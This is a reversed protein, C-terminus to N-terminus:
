LSSHHPRSSASIQVLWLVLPVESAAEPEGSGVFVGEVYLVQVAVLARQPSREADMLWRQGYSGSVSAVLVLGPVVVM